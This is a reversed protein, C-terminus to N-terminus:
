LATFLDLSAIPFPLYLYFVYCDGLMTLYHPLSYYLDPVFYAM